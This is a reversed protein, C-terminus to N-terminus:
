EAAAGMRAERMADAIQYATKALTAPDLDASVNILAGIAVTAMRDRMTESEGYYACHNRYSISVREFLKAETERGALRASDAYFKLAAIESSHM